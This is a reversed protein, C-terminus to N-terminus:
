GAPLLTPEEDAPLETPIPESDTPSVSLRIVVVAGGAPGANRCEADGGMARALRRVVYLGVGAGEVGPSTSPARYFADFAHDLADPPFGPGDDECSITVVGDLAEARLRITPAAGGYKVANSLLNTVMQGCLTPEADVPPLAPSVDVEISASAARRAVRGALAPLLRQLLVPETTVRMEGEGRSVVLLDEVLRNMRDAEHEIDALLDHEPDPTGSRLLRANGLIVTLPTRMEHSLMGSLGDRLQLLRDKEAAVRALEENRRDLERRHRESREILGILTLSVILYISAALVDAATLDAISGFPPVLFTLVGVAGVISALIAPRPGAIWATLAVPVVLVIYQAQDQLVPGLAVRLAVTVAIAGVAFLYRAVTTKM